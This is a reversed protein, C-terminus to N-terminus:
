HVNQCRMQMFQGFYHFEALNFSSVGSDSFQVVDLQGSLGEVITCM